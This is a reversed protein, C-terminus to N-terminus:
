EISGDHLEDKVSVRECASNYHSSTFFFLDWMWGIRLWMMECWQLPIHTSQSSKGNQYVRDSVSVHVGVLCVDLVCCRLSHSRTHADCGCMDMTQLSVTYEPRGIACMPHRHFNIIFIRTLRKMEGPSEDGVPLVNWWDESNPRCHCWRQIEDFETMARAIITQYHGSSDLPRDFVQLSNWSSMRLKAIATPHTAIFMRQTKFGNRHQCHLLPTAVVIVHTPLIIVAAAVALSQEGGFVCRSHREFEIRNEMRMM